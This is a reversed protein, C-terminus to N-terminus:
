GRRRFLCVYTSANDATIQRPTMRDELWARLNYILAAIGSLSRGLLPLKRLFHTAGLSRFVTTLALPGVVPEMRVFEFGQEEVERRLGDATWRRFDTPHPHYLWTGHTSLLLWGQPRLVRRCERLYAAVDWVHELVQFSATLDFQADGCALTGDARIAVEHQRDIDAGSYRAGAAAFWSEYPRSGCGFDVVDAGQLRLAPDALLGRVARAMERLVLWDPQWVSPSARPNDHTM